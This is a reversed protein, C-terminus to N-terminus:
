QALFGGFIRQANKYAWRDQMDAPLKAVIKRFIKVILQASADDFHWPANLDMAGTIRDPYKQLIGTLFALNESVVKDAGVRQVDALLQQTSGGTGLPNQPTAGPHMLSGWSGVMWGPGGDWSFYVNPYRQILPEIVDFATRGGHFLFTVNPAARIDAEVKARQQDIGIPASWAHIMVVSKRANLARLVTQVPASDIGPSMWVNEPIEGVGQFAWAPALYGQLVAETYQGKAFTSQSSFLDQVEVGMELMPVVRAKAGDILPAAQQVVLNSRPPNAAPLAYFGLASSFGYKDLFRCLGESGQNTPVLRRDVFLHLHADFIPGAYEGETATWTAGANPV